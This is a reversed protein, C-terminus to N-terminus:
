KMGDCRMVTYPTPHLTYPTPHLTYPTPNLTCTAPPSMSQLTVLSQNNPACAQCGSRCVQTFVLWDAFASDMGSLVDRESKATQEHDMGSHFLEANREYMVRQGTGGGVWGVVVTRKGESEETRVTEEEERQAKGEGKHATLAQFARSRADEDDSIIVFCTDNHALHVACRM